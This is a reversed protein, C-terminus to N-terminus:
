PAVVELNKPKWNAYWDGGYDWDMNFSVINGYNDILKFGQEQYDVWEGETLRGTEVRKWLNVGDIRVMPIGDLVDQANLAVTESWLYDYKKKAGYGEFNAPTVRFDVTTTYSSYRQREKMVAIEKVHSMVFVGAKKGQKSEMMSIWSNIVIGDVSGNFKTGKYKLLRLPKHSHPITDSPNYHLSRLAVKSHWKIDRISLDNEQVAFRTTIVKAPADVSTQEDTGDLTACLRTEVGFAGALPILYYPIRRGQINTDNVVSASDAFDINHEFENSTASPTWGTLPQLNNFDDLKHFQINDLIYQDVEDQDVENDFDTYSYGTYIRVQMNGNAYVTTEKANPDTIDTYLGDLTINNPDFNSSM